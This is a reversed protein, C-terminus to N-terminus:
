MTTYKNHRDEKIMKRVKAYNSSNKVATLMILKKKEKKGIDRYRKNKLKLNDIDLSFWKHRIIEKFNLRDRGNRKLINEILNALNDSLYDPITYECNLIKKYLLLKSDAEFPLSGTAMCFLTVGASWIDIKSPRYM